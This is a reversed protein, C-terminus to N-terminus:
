KGYTNLINQTNNEGLFDTIQKIDKDSANKLKSKIIPAAATAARAQAENGGASLVAKYIMEAFTKDDLAAIAALKNKDIKNTKDFQM